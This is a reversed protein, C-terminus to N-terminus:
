SMIVESIEYYKLAKLLIWNLMKIWEYIISKFRKWPDKPRLLIICFFFFFISCACPSVASDCIHISFKAISHGVLLEIIIDLYCEWNIITILVLFVDSAAVCTCVGAYKQLLPHIMMRNVCLLIGCSQDLIFHEEKVDNRDHKVAFSIICPSRHHHNTLSHHYEFHIFLFSSYHIASRHIVKEVLRFRKELLSIFLYSKPKNKASRM